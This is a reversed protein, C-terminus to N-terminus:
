VCDICLRAFLVVFAPLLESPRCLVTFRHILQAFTMMITLPSESRGGRVIIPPRSRCRAM